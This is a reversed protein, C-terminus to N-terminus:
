RELSRVAELQSHQTVGPVTGDCALHVEDVPHAEDLTNLVVADGHSDLIKLFYKTMYHGRVEGLGPLVRHVVKTVGVSISVEPQVLLDLLSPM